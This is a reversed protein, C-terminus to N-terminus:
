APNGTYFLTLNKELQSLTSLPLVLPQVTVSDNPHFEIFNLGGFAAAYQDQKGIPERLREIELVCAENAM